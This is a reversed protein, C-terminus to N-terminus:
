PVLARKEMDPIQFFAIKRRIALEVVVDQKCYGKYAKWKEPADTPLNRTRMGNSKTPKCPMSFYRILAKGAADKTQEIKLARSAADLSLPLGLMAAKAM